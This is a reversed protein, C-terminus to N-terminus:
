AVAGVAQYTITGAWALSTAAADGTVRLRVDNSTVDIAVSWDSDEESQFLTVSGATGLTAGGASRRHVLGVVKYANEATTGSVSRGVVSAEVLYATDDALTKSWLTTATGDTTEVAATVCVRGSGAFAPHTKLHEAGGGAAALVVWDTGDYRLTVADEAANGIEVDIGGPTQINGTNDKLVVVRGAAAPLLTLLDGTSFNTATLTDLDDSAADAATDVTHVAATPLVAGAAITLETPTGVFEALFKNLHLRLAEATPEDASGASGLWDKLNINAQTIAAM